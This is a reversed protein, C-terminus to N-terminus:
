CYKLVPISKGLGVCRNGALPVSSCLGGTLACEDCAVGDMEEM